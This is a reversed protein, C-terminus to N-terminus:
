LTFTGDGMGTAPLGAIGESEVLAITDTDPSKLFARRGDHSVVSATVHTPGERDYAVTAAEITTPGTWGQPLATRENHVVRDQVDILAFREPPTASYVAFSHKTASGGNGHVLGLGGTRVREVMGAISHGVANGVPAGGFGLGGTVTLTRTPDIGLAETSMQVISPFCAYLDFHDIDDPTLGVHDFATTGATTLAPCGILEAREILQYTERSKTVVLPFVFKERAVGLSEALDARCVIIATAMDVTNNAVMAKTYPFSIMRNDPTPNRIAEATYPTRDWAYPSAAAVASFGAWLKAIHDRHAEVSTGRMARVRDELLAYTGPALGLLMSEEAQGPPFPPMTEPDGEGQDQIWTPEIDARKLRQHTWRAEGGLILAVDLQGSAVREAAVGLADQPSTGSIPTRMTAAGPAGILEAVLQAPNHYRFWGGVVAVFGVRSLLGPVGADEAALRAAQAMLEIPGLRETLPGDGPRQLFQSVGVIAPAASQGFGITM